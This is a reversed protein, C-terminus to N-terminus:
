LGKRVALRTALPVYRHSRSSIIKGHHKVLYSFMWECSTLLNHENEEAQNREAVQEEDTEDIVGTEGGCLLRSM